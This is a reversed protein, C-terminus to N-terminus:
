RSENSKLRKMQNHSQILDDPIRAYWGGLERAVSWPGGPEHTLNSLQFASMNGYIKYVQDLLNEDHPAIVDESFGTIPAKAEVGQARFDRYIDPIVPGYQWAEIKNSFLPANYMELHWGHSIYVLKLLSMITLVRDERAARRVFWNAIQRADYTPHAKQEM